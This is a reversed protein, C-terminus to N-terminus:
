IYYIYLVLVIYLEKRGEGIWEYTQVISTQTSTSVHPEQRIIFQPHQQM